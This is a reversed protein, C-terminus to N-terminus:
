YLPIPEAWDLYADLQGCLFYPLNLLRFTKGYRTTVTELSIGGAYLRVALDFDVRRMYEHLSRLTGSKGSKVEVPIPLGKYLHIFDLEASAGAKERVWFLPKRHQKSDMAMLQQGVIHEALRGRYIGGLDSIGIYQEQLGAYYNVLGTDLFLLRPSKRKDPLLPLETGTVPYLLYLLMARELTRLAEGMERSRYSSNGFGQFKIRKGAELPATEIAHRIHQFMTSNRAYKAADDTYSVMLSEYLNTLGGPDQHEVYDAVVAPMGGILVYENFVDLLRGHAYSPMPVTKLAQIASDDGKAILYEEFCLPYLYAFEVRGVPFSLGYKDFYVEFLSGAAIVPIEPAEEYFYRLMALAAPSNQIEDIFLLTSKESPSSNKLFYIAELTKRFSLDHNFIERDAGKELNLYIYQRFDGAFLNVATTKGVQRAGRLVLPKRGEKQRWQKLYSLLNRRFMNSNYLM